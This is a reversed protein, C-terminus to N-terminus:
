DELNVLEKAIDDQLEEDKVSKFNSKDTIVQKDQYQFNNILHFKTIQSDNRKNLGFKLARSELISMIKKYASPIQSDNKYKRIKEALTEHIYPRENIAEKIFCYDPNALVINLLTELEKKVVDRTWKVPATFLLGRDNYKPKGPIRKSM